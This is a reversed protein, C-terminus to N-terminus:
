VWGFCTFNKSYDVECVECHAIDAAGTYRRIVGGHAVVMIKDYGMDAYRDFVPKTREIIQIITEWKRTEGAPYEGKCRLFDEHLLKNEEAGKLQFTQDPIFEHLDIEVRLDLGTNKSIIAATQLARTYPSTVIIQCGELSPHSSVEIAQQIGKETLPAFNRGQGIWGREDVPAVDPEGHRIFIIKM